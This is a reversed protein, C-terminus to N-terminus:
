CSSMLTRFAKDDKRGEPMKRSVIIINTNKPMFFYVGPVSKVYRLSQSLNSQSRSTHTQKRKVTSLGSIM